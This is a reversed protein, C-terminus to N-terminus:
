VSIHYEKMLKEQFELYKVGMKESAKIKQIERHMRKIKESSVAEAVHDSTDTLYDMFELFDQSFENCNTGKTNIFVRVAGDHLM